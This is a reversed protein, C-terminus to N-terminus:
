FGGPFVVDPKRGDDQFIASISSHPRPCELYILNELFRDAFLLTLVAEQKSSGDHFIASISPLPRLYDSETSFRRRRCLFGGPFVVDLKRGGDQFITSICPLPRPPDEPRLCELYIDFKDIFLPTLVAGTQQRWRPFHRFNSRPTTIHKIQFRRLPARSVRTVGGSM